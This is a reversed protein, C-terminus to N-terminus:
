SCARRRFKPLLVPRRWAPDLAGYVRPRVLVREAGGAAPVVLLASAPGTGRAFAILRGNPSWAPRSEADPTSLLM